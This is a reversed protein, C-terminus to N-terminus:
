IRFILYTVIALVFALALFAILNSWIMDYSIRSDTEVPRPTLQSAERRLQPFTHSSLASMTPNRFTEDIGKYKGVPSVRCLPHGKLFVMKPSQAFVITAKREAFSRWVPMNFHVAQPPSLAGSKAAAKREFDHRAIIGHAHLGGL